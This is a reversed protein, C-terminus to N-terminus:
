KQKLVFMGGFWGYARTLRRGHRRAVEFPIKGKPHPEHFHISREVDLLIPSFQWVSGYLKEARFGTSVMGHLFDNWPISGPTSSVEPNFFLTRFVKLARVDVHLTPQHDLTEPEPPVEPAAAPTASPVGKTKAKVKPQAKSDELRDEAHDLFVNSLPGNLADLDPDDVKHDRTSATPEVWEATRRLLRPQSLLRYIDMKRLEPVQALTLEDIEAWLTDLNAEASRMADVTEKTRRKHVPYTFKRGSPEALKGAVALNQEKIAPLLQEWPGCWQHFEKDFDEKYQSAGTEFTQAWPQYLELKASCQAVISLDGLINFVHESILADAEPNFFPRSNAAICRGELKLQAKPGYTAQQLYYRFRLLSVLYEEPLDETPLIEAKYKSQLRRLNQAQRHLETFTEVSLFADSVIRHVVRAWLIHEWSKNLLPHSRRRPDKIMEQRHDKTELFQHSFYEPDERLAWVHDEAASMKVELLSELRALDLREPLRYPVEAAMVALSAFGSADSDAKLPPEPQIAYADSILDSAPIDHLIKHCCDVLFRMLRAQVELVLLGDGPAFEKRSIAWHFADNHDDWAVLKGYDESTTAGNLIM